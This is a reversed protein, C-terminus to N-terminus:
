TFFSNFDAPISGATEYSKSYIYKRSSTDKPLAKFKIEGLRFKNGEMKWEPMADLQVKPLGLLVNSGDLSALSAILAFYPMGAGGALHTQTTVQNPTTGSSSSDLAGMVWMGFRDVAGNKLSGEAHTPVSLAEVTMGYAMLMDTAHVPTITLEAGYTLAYSSAAWAGSALRRAVSLGTVNYIVDAFELAM